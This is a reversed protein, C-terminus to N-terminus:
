AVLNCTVCDQCRRRLTKRIVDAVVALPHAICRLAPDPVQVRQGGASPFALLTMAQSQARVTVQGFGAHREVIGSTRLKQSLLFFPLSAQTRGAGSWHRSAHPKLDPVALVPRTDFPGDSTGAGGTQNAFM